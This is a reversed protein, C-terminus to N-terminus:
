GAILQRYLALYRNGQQSWSFDQTMANAQILVWDDRNRYIELARELAWLLAPSDYDDFVVGTGQGLTSDFPVVTDALGGTRRVVPITGYRLSYMQNLGCPEYRSPMLFFDAGAEILHALYNNFGRFFCVKRPHEYQLWGFFGEYRHEGSGLLVLRCDQRWLFDPLVEFMLDFGKQSVLRSVVGIVPADPDDSLGLENLLTRRNASKGALNGRQYRHPIYPDHEPSWESYDVGNLIGHLVERRAALVSELGMGYEPTQVERAYTPSVTVLADAHLIGSKLLNIEGRHFDEQDLRDVHAVLDLDGLYWGSLRGQYGLNHLGLLTRTDAFLRDWAYHTRLYLPTLATQWDNCHIIQPSWALRQCVELTARCLLVFRRHEDEDETYLRGRHYFEPSDILYVPPGTEGLSAQRVGYSATYVGLNVSLHELGAVTEIGKSQDISSYLPLFLRVDHGAEWLFRALAAMVDALGGAKAYPHLESALLCIRLRVM